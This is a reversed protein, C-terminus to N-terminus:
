VFFFFFLLSSPAIIGNVNWCFREAIEIKEACMRSLRAYNELASRIGTEMEGEKFM